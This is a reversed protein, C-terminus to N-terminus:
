RSPPGVFPGGIASSPDEAPTSAVKSRSRPEQALRPQSSQPFNQRSFASNRNLYQTDFVGVDDARLRRARYIRGAIRTGRSAVANRAPKHAAHEAAKAAGAPTREGDPIIAAAPSALDAPPKIAAVTPSEQSASAADAPAADSAPELAAASLAHVDANPPAVAATPAAVTPVAPLAPAAAVVAPETSPVVADTEEVEAADRAPAAATIAPASEVGHRVDGEPTSFDTARWPGQPDRVTLRRDFREPVTVVVVAAATHAAVLQLPYAAAPLRVLPDRNVRFAAFIGFGCSLAVVSAVMAAIILRFNPFM